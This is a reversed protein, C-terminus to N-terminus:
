RRIGCEAMAKRIAQGSGALPLNVSMRGDTMSLTNGSELGRLLASGSQASAVLMGDTTGFQVPIPRTDIRVRMASPAGTLGEIAILGQEGKRCMYHFIVRGSQTRAYHTRGGDAVGATWSSARPASGAPQRNQPSRGSAPQGMCIEAVCSHYAPNSAPGHNALCSWVCRQEEEAAARDRDSVQASTSFAVLGTSLALIAGAIINSKWMGRMTQGQQGQFFGTKTITEPNWVIWPFDIQRITTGILPRRAM